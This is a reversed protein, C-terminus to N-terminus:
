HRHPLYRILHLIISFTMKRMNRINLYQSEGSCILDEVIVENANCDVNSNSDSPGIARIPLFDSRVPMTKGVKLEDNDRFRNMMGRNDEWWFVDLCKDSAFSVYQYCMGSAEILSSLQDDYELTM